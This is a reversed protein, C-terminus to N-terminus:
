LSEVNGPDDTHGCPWILEFHTHTRGDKVTETRKLERPTGCVLCIGYFMAQEIQGPTWERTMGAGAEKTEELPVAEPYAFRVPEHSELFVDLHMEFNTGSVLPEGTTGCVMLVVREEGTTLERWVDGHNVRVVDHQTRIAHKMAGGRIERLVAVEKRLVDREELAASYGVERQEVTARAEDREEEAVDARAREEKRGARESKAWRLADAREKEAIAVAADTIPIIEDMAKQLM